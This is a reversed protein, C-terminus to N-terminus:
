EFDNYHGSFKFIQRALLALTLYVLDELNDSEYSIINYESFSYLRTFAVAIIKYM